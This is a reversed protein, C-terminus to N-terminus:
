SDLFFINPTPNLRNKQVELTEVDLYDSKKVDANGIRWNSKFVHNLIHNFLNFVRILIIIKTNKLLHSPNWSCFDDIPSTIKEKAASVTEIEIRCMTSSDISTAFFCSHLKFVDCLQVYKALRQM